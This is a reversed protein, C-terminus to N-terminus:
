RWLSPSKSAWGWADRDKSNFGWWDGQAEKIKVFKYNVQKVLIDEGTDADKGALPTYEKSFSWDPFHDDRRLSFSLPIETVNGLKDETKNGFTITFGKHAVDGKTERIYGITEQIDKETVKKSYRQFYNKLVWIAIQVNSGSIFVAGNKGKSKKPTASKVPRMYMDAEQKAIERIKHKWYSIIKLTSTLSEHEREADIGMQKKLMRTRAEEEKQQLESLPLDPTLIKYLESTSGMNEILKLMQEEETSGSAFINKLSPIFSFLLLLIIFSKIFSRLKM